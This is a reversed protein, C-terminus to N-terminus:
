NKWAAAVVVEGLIVHSFFGWGFPDGLYKPFEIINGESSFGIESLPASLGIGLAKLIAEKRCWCILARIDREGGGVALVWKTEEPHFVDICYADWSRPKIVEVDVGVFSANTVACACWDRSHSISISPANRGNLFPKGNELKNLTWSSDIGQKYISHLSGDLLQRASISQAVRRERRSESVCDFQAVDISVYGDLDFIDSINGKQDFFLTEHHTKM